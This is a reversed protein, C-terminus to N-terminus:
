SMLPKVICERESEVKEDVHLALNANTIYNRLPLNHQRIFLGAPDLKCQTCSEEFLYALSHGLDNVIDLYVLGGGGGWM